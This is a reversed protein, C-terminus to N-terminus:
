QFGVGQLNRLRTAVTFRENPTVGAGYSGAGLAYGRTADDIVRYEVPPVMAQYNALIDSNTEDFQPAYRYNTLREARSNNMIASTNNSAGNALNLADEEAAAEVDSVNVKGQQTAGPSAVGLEAATAIVDENYATNRDGQGPQSQQSNFRMTPGSQLAQAAARTNLGAGAGTISNIGNIDKVGPGDMMREPGAIKKLYFVCLFILLILVGFYICLNPPKMMEDCFGM